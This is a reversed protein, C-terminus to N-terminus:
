ACAKRRLVFRVHNSFLEEDSWNGLETRLAPTMFARGLDPARVREDLIEFHAAFLARYEALSLRNLCTNAPFRHGRLHDWPPCTRRTKPDLDYYEVNHGGMIGTFVMPRIVAIGQPSLHAAICRCLAPLAAAPVHEFVDESYIFDLARDPWADAQAADGTAIRGRPWDFPRGQIASLARRFRRNEAIDFLVYRLATKLTREAGNTRLSRRLERLGLRFVVRDMDIGRADLGHALLHCLRYPRQGCGIELIAADELAIGAHRRALARYEALDRDLGPWARAAFPSRSRWLARFQRAAEALKLRLPIPQASSASRPATRGRGTLGAM